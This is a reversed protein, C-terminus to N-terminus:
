KESSSDEGFYPIYVCRCNPHLPLSPETGIEYVSGDNEMCEDCIRDDPGALWQVKEFGSQRCRDIAGQNLAYMVETRAILEARSQGPGEGAEIHPAIRKILEDIGEGRLMGETLEALLKKKQDETLGKIYGLNREILADVAGPNAPIYIDSKEERRMRSKLTKINIDAWIEGQQWFMLVQKNLMKRVSKMLKTQFKDIQSSTEAPNGFNDRIIDVCGSGFDNYVRILEKEYKSILRNGGTPDAKSERIMRDFARSVQLHTEQYSQGSLLGDIYIQNIEVHGLDPYTVLAGSEQLRRYNDSFLYEYQSFERLTRSKQEQYFKRSEKKAERFKQNNLVVQQLHLAARYFNTTATVM